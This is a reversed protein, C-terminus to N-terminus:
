QNQLEKRLTKLDDIRQRLCQISDDVIQIKKSKGWLVPLNKCCLENGCNNAKTDCAM